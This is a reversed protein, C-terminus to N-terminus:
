KGGATWITTPGMALGNSPATYLVCARNLDNPTASALSAPLYCRRGNSWVPVGLRNLANQVVTPGAVPAHTGEFSDFHAYRRTYSGSASGYLTPLNNLKTKTMTVSAFHRHRALTVDQASPDSHMTAIAVVRGCTDGGPHRAFVTSAGAGMQIQERQGLVTVDATTYAHDVADITDVRVGVPMRQDHIVAVAGATDDFSFGAAAAYSAGVLVTCIAVCGADLNPPSPSAAPTGKKVSLTCVVRKRKDTNSSTPERTVADEFNRVEPTDTDYALAMQVIDVRPTAGAANDIDVSETGLFTYALVSPTEGDIASVAQLLTGPSIQIARNSGGQRPYAQGPALAFAGTYVSLSNSQTPGVDPMGNAPASNPASAALLQDLVSMQAAAGIRDLDTPDLAEGDTFNVRSFPNAM